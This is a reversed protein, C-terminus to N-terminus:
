GVPISRVIASSSRAGEECHGQKPLAEVLDSRCGPSPDQTQSWRAATILESHTPRLARLDSEHRGGGQDVMDFLKFHIQDLPSAFYVVLATGYDRRVVRGM